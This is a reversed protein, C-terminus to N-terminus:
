RCRVYYHGGGTPEAYCSTPSPSPPPSYAHAEAARANAEAAAQTRAAATALLAATTVAALGVAIEGVTKWTAADNYEAAQLNQQLLVHEERMKQVMWAWGENFARRLQQPTIEKQDAKLALYRAQGLMYEEYIRPTVRKRLEEEHVSVVTQYSPAWLWQWDDALGSSGKILRQDCGPYRDPNVLSPGVPCIERLRARAAMWAESNLRLEDQRQTIAQRAQHASCAPLVLLLFSLSLATLPRKRM